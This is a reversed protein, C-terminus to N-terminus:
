NLNKAFEKIDGQSDMLEGDIFVIPMKVSQALVNNQRLLQWMLLNNEKISTDILQYDINNETLYNTTYSCRKCKNKNFVVIGKDINETTDFVKEQSFASISFLVIALAVLKKM